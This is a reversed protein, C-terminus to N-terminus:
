ENISSVAGTQQDIVYKKGKPAIPKRSLFGAAVMAEVTPPSKKYENYYSNEAEQLMQINTDFKEITANEKFEKIEEPTLGKTIAALGEDTTPPPM